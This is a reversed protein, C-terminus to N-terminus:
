RFTVIKNLETVFLRTYIGAGEQCLHACDKFMEPHMLFYKNQLNDILPTGTERCIDKILKYSESELISDDTYRPSIGIVLKIGKEKSENILRMFVSVLVSDVRNVEGGKHEMKLPFPSCPLGSYGTRDCVNQFLSLVIRDVSSNYRYLYSYLKLYEYKSKLNVISKITSDKDYWPTLRSLLEYYKSDYFFVSPGLDCIILQPTQRECIAHFSAYYHLIGEGSWAPVYTKFGLSDSIILPDYHHCATSAGLVFCDGIAEEMIYNRFAFDSKASHFTKEILLGISLDVGVLILFFLILKLCFVKGKM